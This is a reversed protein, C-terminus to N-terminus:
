EEEFIQATFTYLDTSSDKWCDEELGAKEECLSDLFTEKDWGQETAVQPLYVGSRLGRQLYVGHKGIEIVDPSGIKERPSMVSIEIEVGDLEYEALPLFRPDHFAASLATSKIVEALGEEPEFAGICGRLQGHERLTVFAGRRTRFISYSDIELEYNYDKKEFAAELTERAIKLAIKQEEKNLERGATDLINEELKDFNLNNFAIAAYGVVRDKLEPSYDGSNAYKLLHPKLGSSKALALGATIAPEACALTSVQKIGLSELEAIKKRFQLADSGLIATITKKDLNEADSYIPYHSLDSSIIIVTSKDLIKKLAEGLGLIDEEKNDGFLLPVIKVEPGLIKILFPVAVELSHEKEHPTSDIFVTPTANKLLNIFDRDVKVQGLPTSWASHDDAAVGPFSDNHSRGIIVARTFKAGRLQSFAYAAVKGSYVYGAHPVILLQPTGEYNQVKAEALYDDLIVELEEKNGPYFQSAVAPQRIDREKKNKVSAVRGMQYEKNGFEGSTFFQIVVLVVVPVAIILGVIKTKTKMSTREGLAERFGKNGFGKWKEETRAFARM